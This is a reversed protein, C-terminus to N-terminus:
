QSDFNRYRVPQDPRDCVDPATVSSHPTIVPLSVRLARSSGAGTDSDAAFGVHRAQGGRHSTAASDDRDDCPM